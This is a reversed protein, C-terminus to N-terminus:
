SHALNEWWDFPTQMPGKMATPCLTRRFLVEPLGAGLVPLNM